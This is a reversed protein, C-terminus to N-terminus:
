QDDTWVFPMNKRLLKTLSVAILSLGEVFRRYYGSLGHFSRVKSVNRPQKWELVAEIRKPDLCIGEASVFRLFMVERLWFECKRLKTYLKKERLIQSVVILHEDHETKTKSYMLIDNIFIAIFQDLYSQFVRNMLDMLVVPVNTLGFPM